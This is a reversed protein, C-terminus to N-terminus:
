RTGFVVINKGDVGVLRQAEMEKLARGVMERSCGVIRGLEQRTIRIQMGDPHTIADPEQALDLLSRAVRGFVDMFALDGVKRNTLRLRRALQSNLAYMLDPIVDGLAKLKQYSIHAIECKARSRVLATRNMDENFLGMEGFFEGTNLYALVIEHGKEDELMVTVSGDIIYFLEGSPDGQRIIMAKAPYSKRHCNRLFTQIAETTDFLEKM